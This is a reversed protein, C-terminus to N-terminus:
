EPIYSILKKSILDQWKRDFANKEFGLENRISAKVGSFGNKYRPLRLPDYKNSRLCGIIADGVAGAKSTSTSLENNILSREAKHADIYDKLDQSPIFADHPNIIFNDPLWEGLAEDFIAKALWSGNEITLPNRNRHYPRIVEIIKVTSFQVKENSSRIKEQPIEIYGLFGYGGECKLTEKFCTQPDYKAPKKIFDIKNFEESTMHEKVISFKCLPIDIRASLRILGKNAWDTIKTEYIEEALESSLFTIAGEFTYYDGSM